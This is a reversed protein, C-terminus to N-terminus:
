DQKKSTGEKKSRESQLFVIYDRLLEFYKTKDFSGRFFNCSLNVELLLVGRSTLAVDWGVFPVDPLMLFHARRVLRLLDEMDQIITGAVRAGNDPHTDTVYTSRWPAKLFGLPGLQYWHANTSGERIKGTKVDVDFLISSHDTSAGARGARFVCSLAQILDAPATM